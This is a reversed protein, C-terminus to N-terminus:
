VTFRQVAQQLDSAMQALDASASTISNVNTNQEQSAKAVQQSDQVNKRASEGMGQVASEVQDSRKQQEDALAVIREVQDRLDKISAHIDKFAEGSSEVVQVGDAVGRGSKDISNVTEVTDAQIARIIEAIERTSSESQEALKRVEDAVVAFGRGHEGARAAEIAANLALLNTQGAIGTIVDVIQGIQHSKEGLSHVMKTVQVVDQQIESMKAVALSVQQAGAEAAQESKESANAVSRAVEGTANIAELMGKIVKTSKEATEVQQYASDLVNHINMEVDHAAAGMVGASAALEQSSATVQEATSSTQAVLGRLAVIMDNFADTLKNIEAAGRVDVRQSLDGGAIKRAVEVLSVLPKEISRSVSVASLLAAFVALLAIGGTIMVSKMVTATLESVPTYAVVVWKNSPIPAYAIVAEIGNTSIDQVWGAGGKIAKDIYGLNAFSKKDLVAKKDPHAIATGKNDVVDVYGAQGIKMKDAIEWIAKLSVDAAMVGINKGAKDKIPVAVTICPANTFASIYVDTYFVNGKIAEKFYARDGRNALNGSTRAIQMGTSDMVFILEFVPNKKQADVIMDKLATPNMLQATPTVALTETLSRTSDVLRSIENGMQQATNINSQIAAEKISNSNLYSGVIGCLSAPLLAFLVLMVKLSMNALM